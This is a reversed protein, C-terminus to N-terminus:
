PGAKVQGLPQASGGNWTYFPLSMRLRSISLNSGIPHPSVLKELIPLSAYRRRKRTNGDAHGDDQEHTPGTNGRMIEVQGFVHDKKESHAHFGRSTPAAGYFFDMDLSAASALFADEHFLGQTNPGRTRDDETEGAVRQQGKPVLPDPLSMQVKGIRQNGNVNLAAEMDDLLGRKGGDPRLRSPLTISELAMSLLASTHWISGRDLDLYSPLRLSPISLPIYMSAQMSVEYMSKAANVTRLM